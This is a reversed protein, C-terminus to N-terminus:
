KLSFYLSPYLTGSKHKSAESIRVRYEQANEIGQSTQIVDASTVPTTGGCTQRMHSPEVIVIIHIIEKWLFTKCNKMKETIPVYYLILHNKKQTTLIYFHIFM